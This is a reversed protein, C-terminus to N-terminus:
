NSTILETYLQKFKPSPKAYTLFDQIIQQPFVRKAGSREQITLVEVVSYYLVSFM